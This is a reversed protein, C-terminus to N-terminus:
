AAKPIEWPYGNLATPFSLLLDGSNKVQQTTRCVVGGGGEVSLIKRLGRVGRSECNGKIKEAKPSVSGRSNRIGEM